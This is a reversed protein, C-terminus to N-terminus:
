HSLQPAMIKTTSSRALKQWAEFVVDACDREYDTRYLEILLWSIWARQGRVCPIRWVLRLVLCFLSERHTRKTFEPRLQNWIITLPLNAATDSNESYDNRLQFPLTFLRPLATSLFVQLRTENSSACDFTCCRQWSRGRQDIKRSCRQWRHEHKRFADLIHWLEEWLSFM